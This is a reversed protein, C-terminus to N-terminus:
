CVHSCLVSHMHTLTHTRRWLQTHVFISCCCDPTAPTSINCHCPRHHQKCHDAVLSPVAHASISIIGVHKGREAAGSRTSSPGRDPKSIRKIPSTNQCFTEPLFDVNAEPFCRRIEVIYGRLSLLNVRHLCHPVPSDRSPPFLHFLVFALCSKFFFFLVPSAKVICRVLCVSGFQHRTLGAM